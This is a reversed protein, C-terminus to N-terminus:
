FKNKNTNGEMLEILLVILYNVLVKIHLLHLQVIQHVQYVLHQGGDGGGSTTTTPINLSQNTSSSRALHAPTLRQLNTMSSSPSTAGSHHHHHHSNNTHHGSLSSLNNSSVTRSHM